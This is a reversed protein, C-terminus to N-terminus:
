RVSASEGSDEGKGSSLYGEEREGDRWGQKEREEDRHHTLSTIEGRASSLHDPAERAARGTKM